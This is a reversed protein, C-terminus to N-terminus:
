QPYINDWVPYINKWHYNKELNDHGNRSLQQALEDDEIVNKVAHAFEDPTDAIMIDKGPHYVIGEAGVTTSVIPIGKEWADLIKVRMGGGARLPVVFVRSNRWYNEASDVYGPALINPHNQTIEAPPQKGVAVFTVESNNSLIKPFVENVFWTVGDANPPWHMGGLFLINNTNSPMQNKDDTVNLCIPIIMSKDTLESYNESHEENIGTQSQISKVADLDEQTVWIVKDFQSCIKIEYRAMLKSEHQLWFRIIFNTSSDAMRKPILFVANHQDLVLKPHYGNKIAEERALLAYPAMWLQDSHIADFQELRILDRLKQVMESVADRTILFPTGTLLSQFLALVDRQRSRPMFVCEVKDCLSNLHEISQTTDSSRMFSVLTLSNKQSLYRLNYYSRIKPGADLPYPLVQTLFLIKM